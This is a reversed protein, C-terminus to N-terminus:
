TYIYNNINICVQLYIYVFRGGKKGLCYPVVCM